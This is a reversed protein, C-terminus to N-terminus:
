SVLLDPHGGKPTTQSQIRASLRRYLEQLEPQGALLQLHKEMTILDSRRAPGTQVVRPDAVAFAREVTTQLLPALSHFDNGAIAAAEALMENVFNCAFVAALHLRARAVSDTEKVQESLSLAMRRIIELNKRINAEIFFPVAAIDAAYSRHITQLPYLVGHNEFGRLVDMAVSGATHVVLSDTKPMNKAISEIASDDVAIVYVDAPALEKLDATALAGVREALLGANQYTRSYVGAIRYGRCFFAGALHTAVNGSGIFSISEM